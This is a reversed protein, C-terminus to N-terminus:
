QNIIKPDCSAQFAPGSSPTVIMNMSYNWSGLGNAKSKVIAEYDGEEKGMRVTFLNDHQSSALCEGQPPPTSSVVVPKRTSSNEFKVAVVGDGPVLLFRILWPANNGQAKTPIDGANTVGLGYFSYAPQGQVIGVVVIVISLKKQNIAPVLVGAIEEDDIRPVIEDELTM